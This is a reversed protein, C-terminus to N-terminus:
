SYIGGNDASTSTAKILRENDRLYYAAVSASLETLRETKVKVKQMTFQSLDLCEGANIKHLTQVNSTHNWQSAKM